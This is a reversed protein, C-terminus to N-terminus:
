PNVIVTVEGSPINRLAPDIAVFEICPEEDFDATLVEILTAGVLVKAMAMTLLKWKDEVKGTAAETTLKVTVPDPAQAVRKRRLPIASM